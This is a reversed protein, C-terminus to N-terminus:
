QLRFYAYASCVNYKVWIGDEGHMVAVSASVMLVFDRRMRM